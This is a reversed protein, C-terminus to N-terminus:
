YGLFSLDVILDFFICIGGYRQRQPLSMLSVLFAVALRREWLWTGNMDWSIDEPLSVYSHFIVM